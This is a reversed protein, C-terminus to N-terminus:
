PLLPCAPVEVGSWPAREPSQLAWLLSPLLQGARYLETKKTLDASLLLTAPEELASEPKRREGCSQLADM